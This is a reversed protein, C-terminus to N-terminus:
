LDPNKLRLLREKVKQIDCDDAPALRLFMAYAKAAEKLRGLNELAETKNYWSDPDKPNIKLASEASQLAEQYRELKLLVDSKDILAAADQPSIKLIEDYCALAEQYRQLDHLLGAKMHLAFASNKDMDIIKDFNGIAKEYEKKSVLSLSEALLKETEPTNIGSSQAQSFKIEALPFEWSLADGAPRSNIVLGAFDDLAVADQAKLRINLSNSDIGGCVRLVSNLDGYINSLGKVREPIEAKRVEYETLWFNFDPSFDTSSISGVIGVMRLLSRLEEFVSFEKAFEDYRQSFSQAFKLATADQASKPYLTESQVTVPYNNLFVANRSVLITVSAPRFWFRSRMDNQAGKEAILRYQSKFGRIKTKVLNLGIRKLLYDSEFFVRGFHSNEIAKTMKVRHWKAEQLDGEPDITIKPYEGYLYLSRLACVFDDLLVAPADGKEGIIITDASAPDYIIGYPKAMYGFRYVEPAAKRSDGGNEAAQRIRAEAAKM